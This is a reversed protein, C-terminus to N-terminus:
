EKETEEKKMGTETRWPRRTEHRSFGNRLLCPM